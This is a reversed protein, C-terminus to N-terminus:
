ESLALKWPEVFCLAKRSCYRVVWINTCRSAYVVLKVRFKVDQVVAQFLTHTITHTMQSHRGGEKRLSSTTEATQVDKCEGRTETVANTM